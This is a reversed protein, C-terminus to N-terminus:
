DLDTSLAERVAEPIVAMHAYAAHSIGLTIQTGPQRFKASQADSFPFHLFQVSSAKGAANTREMDDESVGTVTEGAFSLFASHEVGGLRALERARREADPIEFMLTAVLEAGKPVLPNYAALEDAIQAEGGKEIFLMEHVQQLMTEFSEFYFSAFPGVEVRRLRKMERMRVREEARRAAYTEPALLDSRTIEHSEKPM